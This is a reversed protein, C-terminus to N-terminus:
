KKGTLAGRIAKIKKVLEPNNAIEFLLFLSSCVFIFLFIRDFSSLQGFAEVFTEKIEGGQNPKNFDILPSLMSLLAILVLLHVRKIRSWFRKEYYQFSSMMKSHQINNRM